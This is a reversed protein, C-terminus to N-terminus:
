KRNRKALKRTNSTAKREAEAVQMYNQFYEGKKAMDLFDACLKVSREASENTVKFHHLFKAAENYAKNEPWQQPPFSLFDPSMGLIKFFRWSAPSVLDTLEMADTNVSLLDPKGYGTGFCGVFQFNAENDVDNPQEFIKNGLQQKLRDELNGDWQELAVMEPHMYWTHKQFAKLCFQFLLMWLLMPKSTEINLDDM